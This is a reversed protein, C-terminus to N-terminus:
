SHNVGISLLKDNIQLVVKNRLLTDVAAPQSEFMAVSQASDCRRYIEAAVGGITWDSQIACPRTDIFRLRNGDDYVQLVPKSIHWLENWHRV